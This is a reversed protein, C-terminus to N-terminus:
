KIVKLVPMTAGSRVELAEVFDALEHLSMADIIIHQLAPAQKGLESLLEVRDMTHTGGSVAERQMAPTGINAPQKLQQMAEPPLNGLALGGSESIARTVQGIIRRREIMVKLKSYLTM